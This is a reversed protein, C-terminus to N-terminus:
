VSDVFRAFRSSGTIQDGTIPNYVVEFPQFQTSASAYAHVQAILADRLVNDSAFAATFMMWDLDMFSLSICTYRSIPKGSRTLSANSNDLQFGFETSDSTTVTCVNSKVAEDVKMDAVSGTQVYLIEDPRCLGIVRNVNLM